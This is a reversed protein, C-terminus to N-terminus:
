ALVEKKQVVLDYMAAVVATAAMYRMIAAPGESKKKELWNNTWHHVFCMTCPDLGSQLREYAPSAHQGEATGMIGSAALRAITEIKLHQLDQFVQEVLKRRISAAILDHHYRNIGVEGNPVNVNLQGMMTRAFNKIYKRDAAKGM